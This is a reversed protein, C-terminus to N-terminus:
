CPREGGSSAAAAKMDALARAVQLRQAAALALVVAAADDGAAQARKAGALLWDIGVM